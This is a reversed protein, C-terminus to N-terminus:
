QTQRGPQVRIHYTQMANQNGASQNPVNTRIVIDDRSPIRNGGLNHPTNVGPYTKAGYPDDNIVIGRHGGVTGEHGQVPNTGDDPPGIVIQYGGTYDRHDHPHKM